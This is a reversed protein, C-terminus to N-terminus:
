VRVSISRNLMLGDVLRDRWRCRSTTSCAQSSARATEPDLGHQASLDSCDAMIADADQLMKLRKYHDDHHMGMSAGVIELMNM